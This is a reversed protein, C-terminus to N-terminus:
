VKNLCVRNFVFVGEGFFCPLVPYGHYWRRERHGFRGVMAKTYPQLPGSGDSEVEDLRLAERLSAAKERMVSTEKRLAGRYRDPSRLSPETIATGYQSARGPKPFIDGM